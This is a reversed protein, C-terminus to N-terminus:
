QGPQEQPETGLAGFSANIHQVQQDISAQVEAYPAIDRLAMSLDALDHEDLPEPESAQMGAHGRQKYLHEQVGGGEEQSRTRTEYTIESTVGTEDPATHVKLMREGMIGILVVQSGHAGRGHKLADGAGEEWGKFTDGAHVGHTAMSYYDPGELRPEMGAVIYKLHVRAIEKIRAQEPTLDFEASGSQEQDPMDESM